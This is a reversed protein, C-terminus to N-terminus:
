KTLCNALRNLLLQHTDASVQGISGVIIEAPVMTLMNLRCVGPHKLGSSVFDPHQEDLFIDFDPIAQVIKSTIGCVLLDGYKPFAKLVLAPRLKGSKDQPFNILVVKGEM